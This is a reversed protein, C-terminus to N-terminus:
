DIYKKINETMEVIKVKSIDSKKIYGYIRGAFSSFSASIKNLKVPDFKVFYMAHVGLLAIFKVLNFKPTYGDSFPTDREKELIVTELLDAMRKYAPTDTKSFYGEIVESKIPFVSTNQTICDSFEGYTQAYQAGDYITPDFEHEIPHPRLICCNRGAFYVEAIATSMWVGITDAVLIWQKVSYEFIIHFDKHKKALNELQACNWESPHRRYIIQVDPNETLYRDFWELTADMSIRNTHAFGTFDEGAMLSLEDVEKETMSAYGFSSIYLFTKKTKDLLFETFVDDKNKYYGDFEPNLFDMMIAGTVPCNQEPVGHDILRQRTKEGWCTQICKKANGKFNFWEGQEQTDSLMQEWHLNVVKDCKGINNYVHSNLGENDYLCSAVLVKPKKYTFYKLKKRDLLQRIDVSYGRKELESKLLLISEYERVIHEYLILYDLSM